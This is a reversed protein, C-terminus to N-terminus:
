ITQHYSKPHEMKDGRCQHHIIDFNVIQKKKFSQDPDEDLYTLLDREEPPTYKPIYNSSFNM